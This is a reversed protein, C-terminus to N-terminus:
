FPELRFKLEKLAKSSPDWDEYLKKLRNVENIFRPNGIVNKDELIGRVSWPLFYPNNKPQAQFKSLKVESTGLSPVEFLYRVALTYVDIENYLTSHGEGYLSGSIVESLQTILGNDLI